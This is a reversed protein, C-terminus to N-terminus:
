LSGETDERRRERSILKAVERQLAFLKSIEKLNRERGPELLENARLLLAQSFGELERLFRDRREEETPVVLAAVAAPKRHMWQLPSYKRVIRVVGGYKQVPEVM